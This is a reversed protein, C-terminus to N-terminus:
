GSITRCCTHNISFFNNDKIKEAKIKKHGFTTQINLMNSTFIFQKKNIFSDQKILTCWNFFFIMYSIHQEAHRLSKICTYLGACAIVVGWISFDTKIDFISIHLDSVPLLLFVNKWRFVTFRFNEGVM